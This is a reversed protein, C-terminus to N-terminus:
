SANTSRSRARIKSKRRAATARRSPHGRQEPEPAVQPDVVLRREVRGAGTGVMEHRHEAEVVAQEVAAMCRARTRLEQELAEGVEVRRQAPAVAPQDDPAARGLVLDRREGTLGVGGRHVEACRRRGTRARGRRVRRALGRRCRRGRGRAGPSTRRRRGRRSGCWPRRARVGHEGREVPPPGLQRTAVLATGRARERREGAPEFGPRERATRDRDRAPSRSGRQRPPSRAPRRAIRSPM